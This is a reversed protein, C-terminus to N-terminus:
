HVRTKTSLMYVGIAYPLMLQEPNLFQITQSFLVVAVLPLVNIGPKTNRRLSYCVPETLAFLFVTAGPFGLCIIIQQLANHISGYVGTIEKYGVVGTGMIWCRPNNSFAASYTSLMEKRGGGTSLNSMEFRGVIGVLLDPYKQFIYVSLAGMIIVIALLLTIMRPTKDVTFLIILACLAAVLFFSRSTTLVGTLLHLSACAWCLVRKQMGESHFALVIAVTAGIIAFYALSNANLKLCMGDLADVQIDGFRFWGKAFRALWDSPAGKLTSIIITGCLLVSGYLYAICAKEKLEDDARVYSSHLLLMLVIAFSCYQVMRALSFTQYFFSALLELLVVVYAFAMQKGCIKGKVVLLIAAVPMIYTGPLGCLLPITFCVMRVLDEFSSLAYCVASIAVLSWRSIGIGWIDRLPLLICMSFIYLFYMSKSLSKDTKIM